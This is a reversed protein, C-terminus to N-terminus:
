GEESEPYKLINVFPHFIGNYLFFFLFEMVSGNILVTFSAFLLYYARELAEQEEDLYGITKALINHREQM